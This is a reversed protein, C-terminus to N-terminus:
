AEIQIDVEQNNTDVKNNTGERNNTGLKNITTDKPFIVQTKMPVTVKSSTDERFVDLMAKNTHVVLEKKTVQGKVAVVKIIM